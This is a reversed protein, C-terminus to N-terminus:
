GMIGHGDNGGREALLQDTVQQGGKTFKIKCLASEVGVCVGLGM